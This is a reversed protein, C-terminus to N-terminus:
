VKRLRSKPNGELLRILHMTSVIINKYQTERLRTFSNDDNEMQTQEPPHRYPVRAGAIKLGESLSIAIPAFLANSWISPDVIEGLKGKKEFEYTDLFPEVVRPDNRILRPGFWIDLDESEESLIGHKRMIDNWLKNAKREFKEQDKPFTKLSEDDRKFVVIDAEEELVPRMLEDSLCDHIISFKEVETSLIVKVGDLKSAEQYSQQRGASYGRESQTQVAIGINELERKFTDSSGGDVVVIQFGKEKAERLTKLGIDGRVKSKLDGGRAEGPYWGPFYTITAVAVSRPDVKTEPNVRQETSKARQPSIGKLEM